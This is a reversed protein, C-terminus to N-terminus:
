RQEVRRAFDRVPELVWFRREGGDPDVGVLGLAVLRDVAAIVDGSEGLGEADVISWPSALTALSSLCTREQTTLLDWSARVADRLSQRPAFAEERTGVLRALM